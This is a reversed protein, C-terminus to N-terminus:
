QVKSVCLRFPFWRQIKAGAINAADLLGRWEAPRYSRAISLQGDHRVIPHWHMLHALLPYGLYSAGHRHLDNIFWGRRAERNMFHMFSNLQAATMHHTVLSSVILDVNSGAFQAYDGTVYRIPACSPTNARAIAESRPNLDVGTLNAKIGRREAWEAIQRLMDGQGFGVDLLSFEGRNGVAKELFDLTPRAALTVRNVKALDALVAAYTEADLAADDMLEEQQSREALM